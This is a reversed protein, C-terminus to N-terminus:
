VTAYYKEFESDDMAWVDPSGSELETTNSKPQSRLKTASDNVQKNQGQLLDGATVYAQMFSMGNVAMLREVKPMIKQALGTSVDDYFGQLLQPNTTMESQVDQPLMSATEKFADAHSGSLIGQALEDVEQAAVDVEVPAQGRSAILANLDERTINNDRLFEAERKEKALTQTKQTYSVGKEALAKLEKVSEVKHVNGNIKILVPQALKAEPDSRQTDYMAQLDETEKQETPEDSPETEDDNPEVVDSNDYHANFEDDTMNDVTNVDNNEEVPSVDETSIVETNDAM